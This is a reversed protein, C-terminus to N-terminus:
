RAWPLSAWSPPRALKPPGFRAYAQDPDTTEEEVSAGYQAALDSVPYLLQEEETRAGAMLLVSPGGGAGVFIHATGSEPSHLSMTSPSSRSM